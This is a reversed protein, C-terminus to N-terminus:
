ATYLLWWVSISVTPLANGSYVEEAEPRRGTDPKGSCTLMKLAVRKPEQELMRSKRCRPELRLMREKVRM